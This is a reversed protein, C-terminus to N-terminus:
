TLRALLEKTKEINRQAQKEIEEQEEQDKTKQPQAREHAKKLSIIKTRLSKGSQIDPNYQSDSQHEIYWNMLDSVESLCVGDIREMKEVESAWAEVQKQTIRKNQVRKVATYIQNAIKIHSGNFKHNTQPQDLPQDTTPRHKRIFNETKWKGWSFEMSYQRFSKKIRNIRDHELRVLAEIKTYPRDTPLLKIISETFCIKKKM